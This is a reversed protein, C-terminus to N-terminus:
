DCGLEGAAQDLGAAVARPGPNPDVLVTPEGLAEAMGGEAFRFGGPGTSRPRAPGVVDNLRRALGEVEDLARPGPLPDIPRREWTIGGVTAPTGLRQALDAAALAGAVDGGGGIGVCLVRAADRLLTDVASPSLPSAAATSSGRSRRPPATSSM